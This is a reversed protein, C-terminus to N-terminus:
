LIPLIKNNEETTWDDRVRQSGNIAASLAERDEMIEQLKSQSMDMSYTIGDLWRMREWGRRRRGETKELMLIKELALFRKIRLSKKVRRM